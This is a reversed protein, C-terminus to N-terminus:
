EQERHPQRHVGEGNRDTLPKRRLLQLPLVIQGDTEPEAAKLGEHRRDAIEKARRKFGVDRRDVMPDCEHQQREDTPVHQALAQALFCRLLVVARERELRHQHQGHRCADVREGDADREREQGARTFRGAATLKM